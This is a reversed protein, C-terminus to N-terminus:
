HAHRQRSAAALIYAGLLVLVPLESVERAAPDVEMAIRPMFGFVFQYKLLGREGDTTWFHSPRWFGDREWRYRSGDAFQVSGTGRWTREFVAVQAGTAADRVVLQGLLSGTRHRGITWRGDASEATAEFSFLKEWRLTALVESGAELQMERRFPGPRRWALDGYLASRLPRGGALPVGHTATM